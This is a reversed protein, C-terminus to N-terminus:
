VDGPAGRLNTAPRKKSSSWHDLTPVVDDFLFLWPECPWTLLGFQPAVHGIRNDISDHLGEGILMLTPVRNERAILMPCRKVRDAQEVTQEWFKWLRGRRQLVSLVIDLSRHFKCEISVFHLLLKEGESDIACIDGVQALNTKGKRHQLTARGGSMSSRWFLDDRKGDTLWLSLRRCCEREFAAGKAPGGGARM